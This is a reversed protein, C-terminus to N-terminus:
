YSPTDTQRVIDITLDPDSAGSLVCRIEADPRRNPLELLQQGDENMVFEEVFGSGFSLQVSLSGGGWTGQAQVWIDGIVPQPGAIGNDTLNYSEKPM